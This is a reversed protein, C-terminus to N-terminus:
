GLPGSGLIGDYIFKCHEFVKNQVILEYSKDLELYQVGSGQVGKGQPGPDFTISGIFKDYGFVGSEM